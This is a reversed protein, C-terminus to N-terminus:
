TEQVAVQEGEGVTLEVRPLLSSFPFANKGM